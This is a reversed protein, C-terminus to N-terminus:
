RITVAGACTPFLTTGIGRDDACLSPEDFRLSVCSVALVEVVAMRVGIDVGGEFEGNGHQSRQVMSMRCTTALLNLHGHGLRHEVDVFM